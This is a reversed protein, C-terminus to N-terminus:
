LKLDSVAKNAEAFLSRVDPLHGGAAGVVGGLARLM